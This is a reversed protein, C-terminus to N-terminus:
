PLHRLFRSHEASRAHRQPGRCGHHQNAHRQFGSTRARGVRPRQEPRGHGPPQELGSLCQLHEAYVAHGDPKIRPSRQHRYLFQRTTPASAAPPSQLDGCPSIAALYLFRAPSGRLARARVVDNPSRAPVLRQEPVHRKVDKRLKGGLDGSCGNRMQCHTEFSMISRSGTGDSSILKAGPM